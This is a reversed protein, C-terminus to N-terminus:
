YHSLVVNFFDLFLPLVGSFSHLFTSSSLPPTWSPLPDCPQGLKPGEGSMPIPGTMPIFKDLGEINLVTISGLAPEMATQRDTAAM